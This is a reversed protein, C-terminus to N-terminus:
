FVTGIIDNTEIFGCIACDRGLSLGRDLFHWCAVYIDHQKGISILHINKKNKEPLVM